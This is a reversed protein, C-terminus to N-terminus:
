QSVKSIRAGGERVAHRRRIAWVVSGIGGLAPLALCRGSGAPPPTAPTAPAGPPAGGPGFGVHGTKEEITLGLAGQGVLANNADLPNRLRVLVEQEGTRGFQITTTFTETKGPRLAVQWHDAGQVVSAGPPLVLEVQTNPAEQVAGVMIILLAPQNIGPVSPMTLTATLPNAPSQKGNIGPSGLALTAQCALPAAQMPRITVAICAVLLMGIVYGAASLMWRSSRKKYRAFEDLRM